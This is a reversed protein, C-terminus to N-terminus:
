NEEPLKFFGVEEWFDAGYSPTPMVLEVTEVVKTNDVNVYPIKRESPDKANEEDGLFSAGGLLVFESDGQYKVYVFVIASGRGKVYIRDFSSPVKLTIDIKIEDGKGAFVVGNAQDWMGDVICSVRDMGWGDGSLLQVQASPNNGLADRTCNVFDTYVTEGCGTRRCTSKNSFGAEVPAGMDHGLAPQSADYSKLVSGCISCERGLTAPKTCTADEILYYDSWSHKYTGNMCQNVKTWKAYLTTNETYNKATDVATTFLEDEYWGDFMMSPDEHTPTPHNTIRDGKYIMAEWEDDGLMGRGPNYSVCVLYRTWLAYLTKNGYTGVDLKTIPKGDFTANDYWGLFTYFERSPANLEVEQEITYQSPNPINNEGGNLEYDIQYTVVEWKAVLTVSDTVIHGVFSWKEDGVYWGDFTYGNKTPNQPVQAKHGYEIEQPEIPTGGVSDFIVQYKQLTDTATDTSIDTNTSTDTNTDINTDASTDTNTNTNTNTSENDNEDCAVLSFSLVLAVLVAIILSLKKM